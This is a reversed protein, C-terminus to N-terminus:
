YTNVAIIVVIVIIIILSLLVTMTIQYEPLSSAQRGQQFPGAM